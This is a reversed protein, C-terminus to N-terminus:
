IFNGIMKEFGLIRHSILITICPKLNSCYHQKQQQRKKKRFALIKLLYKLITFGKKNVKQFNTITLM